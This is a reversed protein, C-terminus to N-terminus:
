VMGYPYEHLYEALKGIFVLMVPNLHNDVSKANKRDHVLTTEANPPNFCCTYPNNADHDDDRNEPKMHSIANPNRHIM